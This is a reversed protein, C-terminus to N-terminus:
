QLFLKLLSVDRDTKARTTNNEQEDIFDDIIAGEVSSLLDQCKKKWKTEVSLRARTARWQAHRVVKQTQNSSHHVKM